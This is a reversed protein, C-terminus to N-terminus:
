AQGPPIKRRQPNIVTGDRYRIRLGAAHAIQTLREKSIPVKGNPSPAKPKQELSHKPM